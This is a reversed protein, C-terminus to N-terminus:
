LLLFYLAVPALRPFVRAVIPKLKADSQNLFHRSNKSGFRELLFAFSNVTGYIRYKATGMEIKFGM